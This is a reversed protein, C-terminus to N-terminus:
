RKWFFHRNFYLVLSSFDLYQVVSRCHCSWDFLSSRFSWDYHETICFLSCLNSDLSFRALWGVDTRGNLQSVFTSGTGNLFYSFRMHFKHVFIFRQGFYTGPEMRLSSQHEQVKSMILNLKKDEQWDKDPHLPCSQVLYELVEKQQGTTFLRGKSQSYM